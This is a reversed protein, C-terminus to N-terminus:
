GVKREITEVRKELKGILDALDGMSPNRRDKLARAVDCRLTELSAYQGLVKAGLGEGEALIALLLHESGVYNHHLRDAEKHALQLITRARDTLRELSM